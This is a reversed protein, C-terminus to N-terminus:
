TCYLRGANGSPPPAQLDRQDTLTSQDWRRTCIEPAKDRHAMTAGNCRENCYSSQKRKKNDLQTEVDNNQQLTTHLKLM